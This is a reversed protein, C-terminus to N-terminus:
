ALEKDEQTGKSKNEKTHKLASEIFVHISRQQEQNKWWGVLLYIYPRGNRYIMEFLVFVVFLDPRYTPPIWFQLFNVIRIPAWFVLTWVITAMISVDFRTPFNRPLQRQIRTLHAVISFVVVAIFSMFNCIFHLIAITDCNFIENTFQASGCIFYELLTIGLSLAWLISCMLATFLKPRHSHYCVPFFFMFYREVTIVTLFYISADNGLFNSIYRLSSILSPFQTPRFYFIIDIFYNVIIILDAISMNLLYMTLCTKNIRCSLLYILMGNGIIGLACTLLGLIALLIHSKDGDQPPSMSEVSGYDIHPSLNKRSIM